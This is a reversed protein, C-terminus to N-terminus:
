PGGGETRGGPPAGSFLEPEQRAPSILEPGENAPSNVKDSVPAAAMGEAPYPGLLHLLGGPNLEAAPDLWAAEAGPALIVPMRQHVRGVLANAETTVIAFTALEAGGAQDRWIEYLGAFAFLGGGALTYRWPSTKKKGQRAWEYFGDAPVLCRRRRFADRFTPRELLGEARANIMKYGKAQDAAWRPVLGWRLMVGRRGERGALVALAEQGPALNWRPRFDAVPDDFAFRAQLEGLGCTISYRGCM